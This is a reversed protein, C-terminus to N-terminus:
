RVGSKGNLSRWRSKPHRLQPCQGRRSVGDQRAPPRRALCGLPHPSSMFSSCRSGWGGRRMMAVRLCWEHAPDLRDADRSEVPPDSGSTESASPEADRIEALDSLRYGWARRGSGPMRFQRPAVGYPKLMRALRHATIPRGRREALAAVIEETPLREAGRERFLELLELVLAAAATEPQDRM